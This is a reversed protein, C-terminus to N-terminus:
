KKNAKIIKMTEYIKRESPKKNTIKRKNFDYYICNYKINRNAWEIIGNM